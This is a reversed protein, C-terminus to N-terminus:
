LSADLFSVIVYVRPVQLGLGVKLISLAAKLEHLLEYVVKTESNNNIHSKVSAEM